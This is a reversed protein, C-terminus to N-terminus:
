WYQLRRDIEDGEISTFLKM